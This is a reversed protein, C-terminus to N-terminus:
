WHGRPMGWALPLTLVWVWISLSKNTYNQLTFSGNIPLSKKKKEYCCSNLRDSSSNLVADWFLRRDKCLVWDPQSRRPDRIVKPLKLVDLFLFGWKKAMMTKFEKLQKYFDSRQTQSKQHLALQQSSDSVLSTATTSSHMGWIQWPTPHLFVSLPNRWRAPSVQPEILPGPLYTIYRNNLIGYIITGFPNTDYKYPDSVHFDSYTDKLCFVIKQPPPPPKYLMISKTNLGIYLNM